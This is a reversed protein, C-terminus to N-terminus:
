VTDADEGAWNSPPDSTPFTDELEKDLMTEQESREAERESEPDQAVKTKSKSPEPVSRSCTDDTAM